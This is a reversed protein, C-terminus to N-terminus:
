PFPTLTPRRYPTLKARRNVREKLPALEAYADAYKSFISTKEAELRAVIREHEALSIVPEKRKFINLM